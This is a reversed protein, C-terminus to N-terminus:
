GFQLGLQLSPVNNLLVMQAPFILQWVEAVCLIEYVADAGQRFFLAMM